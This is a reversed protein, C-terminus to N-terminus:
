LEIPTQPIQGALVVFADTARVRGGLAIAKGILVKLISGRELPVLFACDGPIERLVRLFPTEAGGVQVLRDAVPSVQPRPQAPGVAVLGPRDSVRVVIDHKSPGRM